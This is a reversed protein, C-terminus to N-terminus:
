VKVKLADIAIPLDRKLTDVNSMKDICAKKAEDLTLNVIRRMTLSYADKEKQYMSFPMADVGLDIAEEIRSKPEVVYWDDAFLASDAFFGIRAERWDEGSGGLWYMSNGKRIIQLSCDSGVWSERRVPKGDAKKLCEILNM